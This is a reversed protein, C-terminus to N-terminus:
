ETYNAFLVVGISLWINEDSSVIYLTDYVALADTKIDLAYKEVDALWKWWLM